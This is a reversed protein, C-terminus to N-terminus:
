AASQARLPLNDHAVGEREMSLVSECREHIFRRLIHKNLLAGQRVQAIERPLVEVATRPQVM